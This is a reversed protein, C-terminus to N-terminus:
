DVENEPEEFTLKFYKLVTEGTVSEGAAINQIMIEFVIGAKIWSKLRGAFGYGREMRIIGIEKADHAPNFSLATRVVIGGDPTEYLGPGIKTTNKQPM